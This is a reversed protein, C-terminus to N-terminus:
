RRFRQTLYHRSLTVVLQCQEATFNGIHTDDEDLRMQEALWTYAAQRTMYNFQWLPDFMRHAQKRMERTREDAPTGLPHGDPRCGCYAGCSDCIWLPGFDRGPGYVSNSTPQWEVLGPCYLCDM